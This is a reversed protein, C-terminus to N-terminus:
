MYAGPALAIVAYETSAPRVGPVSQMM